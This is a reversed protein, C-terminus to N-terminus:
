DRHKSEETIPQDPTGADTLELTTKMRVAMQRLQRSLRPDISGHALAAKAMSEQIERIAAITEPPMVIGSLKRALDSVAAQSQPPIAVKSLAQGLDHVLQLQVNQASVTAMSQLSGAIAEWAAPNISMLSNEVIKAALPTASVAKVLSDVDRQALRELEAYFAMGDDRKFGNRKALPTLLEVLKDTDIISTDALVDAILSRDLGEDVLDAITQEPTTVPLGESVTISQEPLQRIRFTLENRQTQRRSPVTFQYPEPVLDGLGLLYTATSGSAVTEAPTRDLREQATLRPSISLWAAKIADFRDPPTGADRYLGHGIRELHGLEALRSLQLRSIGRADAQATTVM